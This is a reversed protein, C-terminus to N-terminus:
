LKKTGDGGAIEEQRKIVKDFLVLGVWLANVLGVVQRARPLGTDPVPAEVGDDLVRVGDNQGVIASQESVGPQVRVLRRAGPGFPELRGFAQRNVVGRAM